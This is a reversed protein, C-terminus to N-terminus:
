HRYHVDNQYMCTATLLLCAQYVSGRLALPNIPFITYFDALFIYDVMLIVCTCIGVGVGMHIEHLLSIISQQCTVKAEFNRRKQICTSGFSWVLIQIDIDFKFIQYHLTSNLLVFSIQLLFILLSHVLRPAPFIGTASGSGMCFVHTHPAM